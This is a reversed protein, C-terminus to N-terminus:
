TPAVVLEEVEAHLSPDIHSLAELDIGEALMLLGIERTRGLELAIAAEELRGACVLAHAAFRSDTTQPGRHESMRDDARSHASIVAAVAEVLQAAADAALKVDDQAEALELLLRSTERAESPGM